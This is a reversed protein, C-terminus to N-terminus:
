VERGTVEFVGNRVELEKLKVNNPRRKDNFTLDGFLITKFSEGSSLGKHVGERSAGGKQVAQALVHLADYAYANFLGPDTNFKAKFAKVFKQVGADPDKLAFNEALVTGEAAKGGVEIFQSTAQGGLFKGTFGLGRLQKVLLGGEPAYGLHAVLEPNAEKARLLVPRFDQSEPNIASSYVVELGVEAAYKKFLDFSAKGWDTQLYLVAVKKGYKSLVKTYGQQYNEQTLSTTWAMDGGDTFAPNSNTFGFQVLKARQYVPTAAMSAGSSFDGLEAIISSDAVFKQAIPVSQKPDSQSDEWVLEVKKGNIGGAGNLEDLAIQFGQEYYKGYEALPGTKPASVGFKVVSQEEAGSAKEGVVSCGTLAAATGAAAFLFGRRGLRSPTASPSAASALPFLQSSM